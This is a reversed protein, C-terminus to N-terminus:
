DTIQFLIIDNGRGCLQEDAICVSNETPGDYDMLFQQTSGVVSLHIINLPDIFPLISYINEM